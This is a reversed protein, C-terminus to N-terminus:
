SAVVPPISHFMSPHAGYEILLRAVDKDRTNYVGSHIKIDAGNELFLKVIAIDEHVVAIELPSLHYNGRLNVDAGHEILCRVMPTRASARIAMQLAIGAESDVSAGGELLLEATSIHNHIVALHFPNFDTLREIITMDAGNQLLLQVMRDNGKSAAAHLATWGARPTRFQINAGKELLFKAMSERQHWVAWLLASWNRDRPSDYVYHHNAYPRPFIHGREDLRKRLSYKARLILNPGKDLVAKVIEEPSWLLDGPGFYPVTFGEGKEVLQRVMDENGNAAACFLATM